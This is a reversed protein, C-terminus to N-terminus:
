EDQLKELMEPTFPQERKRLADVWQQRKAKMEQPYSGSRIFEEFDEIAGKTDGTLARALGRTDKFLAAKPINGVLKIAKESYTLAKAAHGALINTWGVENLFDADNELSPSLKVAKDYVQLAKELDHKRVQDQAEQFVKALAQLHQAIAQPDKDIAPTAPNLDVGPDFQQAEQFAAIAGDIDGQGALQAGEEIKASALRRVVAQPDKDIIDPTAPDLDVGPDLKQAEKFAAIAGEIDGRGALEAGEEVKASAMLHRVVAQPDKDIIDPTAPDLDVGPDLKQAEKFAAIAGEINGRGALQAGEEVKAPAVLHRAVAQPDKDIIDPTAPDLDVGPDFKQAEKFAAIAGEINGRGALEAGEKAKPRGRRVLFDNKKDANWEGYDQCETVAHEVLAKDGSEEGIDVAIKDRPDVLVDHNRIRECAIRLWTEPHPIQWLQATAAGLEITVINYANSDDTFVSKIVHGLNGTGGGAQSGILEGHLDWLRVVGDDSGSVFHGDPHFSVSTFSGFGSRLVKKEVWGEKRATWLRLTKDSSGSVITTGDQSIAVCYVGRRHGEMPKGLPKGTELEWRRVTGDDGGSVITTGDPSIALCNVSDTHGKMPKGRPKGTERDWLRVTKDDGGSVITKGDPSIALCNVSDTHGKMPKGRPKGTERDWLRVTKDSGGSVITKGDPSIALCNVSDKRGKVPAGIPKGTERDWLRVTGDSDGSVITKGDPAVAISSFNEVKSKEEISTLKTESLFNRRDWVCLAGDNNGCVIKKADPSIAVSTASGHSGLVPKAIREGTALEWLRVTGDDGGSVITKGDPSIAVSVVAGEHGKMPEGIPKATKLDWLRVTGDSGASVITKGDPSIAVSFVSGSHGKMPEGIPKATKLDWLRVGDYGGSVITKGDPSIAVSFLIREDGKMPAGIPKATERDWLRMTGDSGGSVITKGDPSIAVSFVMREHGKMPAGIPKATERDWLRVTGDSGGSVITKGDPSIAVSVVVREHGKMPEGIPKATELDWLRVTGDYGGSVITKGDSSFAISFIVGQHTPILLSWQAAQIASLLSAQVQPLADQLNENKNGEVEGAAQIALVLAEVRSDTVKEKELAAWARLKIKEESAEARNKERVAWGKERVAWGALIALALCVGGVSAWLIRSAFRARRKKSDEATQSQDLFREVDDFSLNYRKAWIPTPNQEQKWEQARELERGQILNAEDAKWRSTHDALRLYEEASKAEKEIWSGLRVWQRLLAEHSIDLTTKGTLPASPTAVLFNAGSQRFHEVVEAVIQESVGAIAAVEGLSSLRRDLTGQSSRVALSRFLQEAVRQKESQEGAKSSSGLERYLQEAHQDLASEFGGAARYDDPTLSVPQNKRIECARNWMRLLIHEVRPLQDQATGLSNLLDTVVRPEVRGGVAAIPREIIDQVQERTMRPTLFQSKAIAASLGLFAECKGLYESRMTLVVYVRPDCEATTGLLMDVFALTANRRDALSSGNDPQSPGGRELFRFIEEFQDILVVLRALEPLMSDAVTEILGRPGGRLTQRRFEILDPDLSQGPALQPLLESLLNEYPDLGPRTIVFRWDAVEDGGNIFGAAIAPLLGARVLSSKGSGSSGVVALFHGKRLTHVMEAIHEGRGYFLAAEHFEFPRLGVYPAPPDHEPHATMM